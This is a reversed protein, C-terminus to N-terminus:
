IVAIKGCYPLLLLRPDPAVPPSSGGNGNHGHANSGNAGHNNSGLGPTENGVSKRIEHIDFSITQFFLVCSCM